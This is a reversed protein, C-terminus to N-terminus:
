RRKSPGGITIASILFIINNVLNVYFDFSNGSLNHEDIYIGKQWLALNSIAILILSNILVVTPQERRKIILYVMNIVLGLLCIYIYYHFDGM